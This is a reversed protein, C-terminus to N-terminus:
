RALARLADAAAFDNDDFRAVLRGEADLALLRTSHSIRGSRVSVTLGAATALPHLQVPEPRAFRWRAPDAGVQVAYAALVEATDVEPDITVAVIRADGPLEPQLARLRAVTAPCYSPDPCTTYLFALLTPRGQGAGVAVTGGAADALDFRPLPEGPALPAEAEAGAVDDRGTREVDVLVYGYASVVVRAAIRDGPRLEAAVARAVDFPMVMAPMLGDIPDHDVLLATADARVVLGTLPWGGARHRPPLPGSGTPVLRTLTGAGDAERRVWADVLQGPEAVLGDHAYLEVDPALRAGRLADHQLVLEDADAYLVLGLDDAPPAGCAALLPLAPALRLM